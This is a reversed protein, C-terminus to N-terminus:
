SRRRTTRITHAGAEVLRVITVLGIGGVLNGLGAWGMTAAWDLYGFRAHGQLAGFMELSSVVIHNLHGIAILFGIVLSATVKSGVGPSTHEIWTMLTLLMGAVMASAFARWETGYAVFRVALHQAQRDLEPLGNMILAMVLWGGALNMVLTTAWLRGVQWARVRHAAMATLPVLFNETFLESGALGLVIFGISFALSSVLENGGVHRVLFLALVGAAVDIGGVAGTAILAPWSRGSRREGEEVSGRFAEGPDRSM